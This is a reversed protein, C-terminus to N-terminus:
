QIERDFLAHRAIDIGAITPQDSSDGHAAAGPQRSQQM